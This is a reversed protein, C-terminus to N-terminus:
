SEEASGAVALEVGRIEEEGAMEATDDARIAFGKGSIEDRTRKRRPRRSCAAARCRRRRGGRRAARRNM